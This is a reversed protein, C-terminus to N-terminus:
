YSLTDTESFLSAFLNYMGNIIEEFPPELLPHIVVNDQENPTIFNYGNRQIEM